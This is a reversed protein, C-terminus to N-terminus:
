TRWRSVDRRWSSSILIMIKLDINYGIDLLKIDTDLHRNQNKMNIVLYSVYFMLYDQDKYIIYHLFYTLIQHYVSHVSSVIVKKEFSQNAVMLLNIFEIDINFSFKDVEIVFGTNKQKSIVLEIGLMKNLQNYVNKEHNLPYVLPNEIETPTKFVLVEMEKSKLQSKCIGCLADSGKEITLKKSYIKASEDYEVRKCSCSKIMKKKRFIYGLKILKEVGTEWDDLFSTDCLFLNKENTVQNVNDKFLELYNSNDSFSDLNNIAIKSKLNTLKGLLNVYTPVVYLGHKLYTSRVGIPINSILTNDM